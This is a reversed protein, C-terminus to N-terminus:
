NTFSIGIRSELSINTKGRLKMLDQHLKKKVESESINLYNSTAAISAHKTCLIDLVSADQKTCLSEIVLGYRNIAGTTFQYVRRLLRATFLMQEKVDAPQNNLEIIFIESFIKEAITKNNIVRCISGYIIAAYREYFEAPTLTPFM